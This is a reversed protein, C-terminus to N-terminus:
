PLLVPLEPEDLKFIIRMLGTSPIQAYHSRYLWPMSIMVESGIIQEEFQFAAEGNETTQRVSSRGEFKMEVALDNVAENKDQVGNDNHDVYVVITITGATSPISSFADSTSTPIVTPTVALVPTPEIAPLLIQMEASHMGEWINDVYEVTSDELYRTLNDWRMSRGKDIVKGVADALDNPSTHYAVISFKWLDD